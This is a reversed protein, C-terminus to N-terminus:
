FNDTAEAPRKPPERDNNHGGAAYCGVPGYAQARVYDITGRNDHYFTEVENRYMTREHPLHRHLDSGQDNVAAPEFDIMSM